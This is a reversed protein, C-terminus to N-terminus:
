RYSIAMMIGLTEYLQVVTLILFISYVTIYSVLYLFNDKPTLQNNKIDVKLKKIKWFYM